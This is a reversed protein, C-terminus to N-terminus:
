YLKGNFIFHDKSSIVPYMNFNGNLQVYFIGFGNVWGSPKGKMYDPKLDCACPMSYCVHAENTSPTIKVAVQFDHNHGNVVNCEFINVTKSAHYQNTYIGHIFTLKGIKVQNPEKEYRYIEWDKLHLNREIECFGELEPRQDIYQELWESHNGYMWIKRCTDPLVLQDLIQENYDDYTKRLRKGEMGRRNGKDIEWHNVADMDLNDGGFVFFDPKIDGVVRLINEWLKKNHNPFHMDYVCVGCKFAPEEKM